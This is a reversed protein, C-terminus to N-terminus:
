VEQNPLDPKKRSITGPFIRNAAYSLLLGGGIASADALSLSSGGVLRNLGPVLSSFLRAGLSGWFVAQLIPNARFAVSGPGEHQDRRVSFAHALTSVQLTQHAMTGAHLGAGHRLIGYAGVGAAGAAIVAAERDAERLIRSDRADPLCAPLPRAEPPDFCLGLVALSMGLSDLPHARFSLNAATGASLFLIEGLSAALLLRQTKAMNRYLSRGAQIAPILTQLEDRELVLDAARLATEKGSRGLTVGVDAMRLAPADNIGDGVMAVVQGAHQYAQIIQSKMSPSAKAFVDVRTALPRRLHAPVDGFLAADLIKMEEDGSVRLQKGIAYATPAQDGTIIVTEIGMRQLGATLQRADKRLPDAMGVLGVWIFGEGAEGSAEVTSYAVGLVRLADSAMEVNVAEITRRDEPLLPMVLGDKLQRDCEELVDFPSGKLAFLTQGAPTRHLSTVLPRRESRLSMRQVPFSRRLEGVELGAHRAMRLLTIETSSGRFVEQGKEELIEAENCLVSVRLLQLLDPTGSPNVPDEGSYFGDEEVAIRKMGCFIGLVSMRNQTITGTKDLCVVQIAGLSGLAGLRRVRIHHQKLDRLTRSLLATGLLSFGVPFAAIFVAPAL